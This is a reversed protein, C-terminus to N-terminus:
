RLYRYWIDINPMKMNSRFFQMKQCKMNLELFFKQAFICISMIHIIIHQFNCFIVLYMCITWKIILPAVHWWSISHYPFSCTFWFKLMRHCGEIFVRNPTRSGDLNIEASSLWSHLTMTWIWMWLDVTHSIVYIYKRFYM